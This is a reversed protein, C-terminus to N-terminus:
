IKEQGYEMNKRYLGDSYKCTQIIHKVTRLVIGSFEASFRRLQKCTRGTVPLNGGPIEADECLADFM